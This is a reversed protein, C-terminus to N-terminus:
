RSSTPVATSKGSGSLGMVVQIGGAPMSINIDKLGLVRGHRENLEAKGIGEKVLRVYDAADAGFIKYLSKIEINAGADAM